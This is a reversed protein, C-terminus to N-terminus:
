QKVFTEAFSAGLKIQSMNDLTVKYKVSSLAGGNGDHDAIGFNSNSPYRYLPRGDVSYTEYPNAYGNKTLARAFSEADAQNSFRETRLIENWATPTNCMEVPGSDWVTARVGKGDFNTMYQNGALVHWNTAYDIGGKYSDNVKGIVQVYWGSPDHSYTDWPIVFGKELSFGYVNKLGALATNKNMFADFGHVVLVSSIDMTYTGGKRKFPGYREIPDFIVTNRTGTVRMDTTWLSGPTNWLTTELLDTKAQYADEVRSYFMQSIRNECYNGIEEAGENYAQMYPIGKAKTAKDLELVPFQNTHQALPYIYDSQAKAWPIVVSQQNMLSNVIALRPAGISTKERLAYGGFYIWSVVDGEKFFSDGKAAKMKFVFSATDNSHGMARWIYTSIDTGLFDMWSDWKLQSNATYLVSKDTITADLAFSTTGDTINAGQAYPNIWGQVPGGAQRVMKVFEYFAGYHDFHGHTLFVNKVKRPDFGLKAINLPYQYAATANGMDLVSLTGDTGVFLYLATYTDGVMYLRNKMLEIPIASGAYGYSTKEVTKSKLPYWSTGDYQMGDPTYMQSATLTVPTNFVYLEKVKSSGDKWSTKYNKDFICVATYRNPTYYIEGDAGKATVNIDAFTGSRALKWDSYNNVVYIKVDSALTYKEEFVNSYHNGDGITVTNAASDKGLVWGMAVMNGAEGGKATLEGMYSAPDMNTTSSAEILELDVCKGASDFRIEAFANKQLVTVLADARSVGTVTSKSSADDLSAATTYTKSTFAPVEMLSVTVTGDANKAAATTVWGYSTHDITAALTPPAVIDPQSDKNHSCGAYFCLGLAVLSLGGVLRVEPIHRGAYGAARSLTGAVSQVVQKRNM